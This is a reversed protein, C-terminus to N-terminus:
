KLQGSQILSNLQDLQSKDVDVKIKTTRDRATRDLEERAKATDADAGITAKTGRLEAEIERKWRAGAQRAEKDTDRFAKAIESAVRSTEPLISVYTDAISKKGRVPM